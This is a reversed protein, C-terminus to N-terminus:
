CMKLLKRHQNIDQNKNKTTTLFHSQTFIARFPSLANLTMEFMIPFTTGIGLGFSMWCNKKIHSVWTLLEFLMKFFFDLKGTSLSIHYNGVSFVYTILGNFIIFAYFKMHVTFVDHNVVYILTDLRFWSTEMLKQQLQTAHRYAYIICTTHESGLSFHRSVICWSHASGSAGQLRFKDKTM